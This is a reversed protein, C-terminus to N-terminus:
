LFLGVAILVLGILLLFIGIWQRMTVRNAPTCLPDTPNANCDVPETGTGPATGPAPPVPPASLTFNAEEYPYNPCLQYSHADSLGGKSATVQIFAGDFGKNGTFTLSWRGNADTTRTTTWEGVISMTAGPVPAGLHDRVIGSVAYTGSDQDCAAERSPTPGVALVGAFLLVGFVVVFAGGVVLVPRM